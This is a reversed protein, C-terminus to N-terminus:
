CEFEVREKEIKIEGKVKIMGKENEVKRNEEKGFM